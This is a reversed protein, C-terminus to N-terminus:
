RTAELQQGDPGTVSIVNGGPSGDRLPHIAVSVHQGPQLTTRRWGLRMLHVPASMELSWEQEQGEADRVVLQIFCHPNIWQFERVTGDLMVTNQADFMAASHHASAPGVCLLALSLSGSLALFRSM